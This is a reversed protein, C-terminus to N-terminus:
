TANFTSLSFRKGNVAAEEAANLLMEASIGVIGRCRGLYATLWDFLRLTKWAWDYQMYCLNALHAIEPLIASEHEEEEAASYTSISGILTSTYDIHMLLVGDIRKERKGHTLQEVLPRVIHERLASAFDGLMSTHLTFSVLAAMGFMKRLAIACEHSPLPVRETHFAQACDNFADSLGAKILEISLMDDFPATPRYDILLYGLESLSNSLYISAHIEYFRVAAEVYARYAADNQNLTSYCNGMHHLVSGHNVEDKKASMLTLAQAYTDLAEAPRGTLEYVSAQNMLAMSLMHENEVHGAPKKDEASETVPASRYEKYHLGAAVFCREAEELRGADKALMGRALEANGLLKSDTSDHALKFLEEVARRAEKNDGSRKALVNLQLLLDAAVGPVGFNVAANAGERMIEIGRRPEALFCFVQLNCALWWIHKLYVPNTKSRQVCQDFIYSFNPFEESIRVVGVGVEGGYIYQDDLVQAHIAIDEALELFLANAGKADEEPYANRVFMRVPSLVRIRRLNSIGEEESVLHWRRLGAIALQGDTVGFYNVRDFMRAICGAPCHSLVFLIRREDHQLASYTIGLCVELSTGKTQQRRTPNTLISAGYKEIRENVVQASKFYRLLGGIIKLTLPHGESFTVLSEIAEVDEQSAGTLSGATAEIAQISAAEGLPLLLISSDWDVSFLDAQSTLLFKTTRTRSILQCFFDELEEIREPTIAEVGDFAVLNVVADLIEHLPTINPQGNFSALSTRLYLELDAVAAFDEVNVWIVNAGDNLKAIAHLALQTKGIGGPGRICVTRKEQLERVLNEVDKERGVFVSAPTPATLGWKPGSGAHEMLRHRTQAILKEKLAVIESAPILRKSDFEVHCVICLRILNHHHHSLSLAYDDIHANDLRYGRGCRPCQGGCETKLHQIIYDPIAPREDANSSWPEKLYADFAELEVRRFMTRGDRQITGLRRDHGLRTKPAYRVYAYLLEQTVGLFHAAERPEMLQDADTGM